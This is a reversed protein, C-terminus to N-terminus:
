EGSGWKYGFGWLTQIYKPVSPDDEIKMRLRRMNVDVTKVEGPYEEGWVKDLIQERSLAVNRNELFCKMILFEVQTLEIPKDNKTFTRSVLNLKFPGSMYVQEPEEHRSICVRRYLADVRMLLDSTSFPKTIYDDAGSVFGSMKDMEQTKATLLIIGISMNKERLYKAVAFGDIGPLMIDLVAIDIDKERDFVSIAEEGTAAELINYGARKLNIVVFERIADEDELVLIKKM